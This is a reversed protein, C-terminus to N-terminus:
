SEHVVWGECGQRSKVSAGCLAGRVDSGGKGRGMGMDVLLMDRVEAERGAVRCEGREGGPIEGCREEGVRGDKGLYGM